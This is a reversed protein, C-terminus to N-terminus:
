LRDLDEILDHADALDITRTNLYGFGDAALLLARAIELERSRVRAMTDADDLMVALSDNLDASDIIAAAHEDASGEDISVRHSAGQKKLFVIHHLKAPGSLRLGPIIEDAHVRTSILFETRLVRELVFRAVNKAYIAAVIRKPIQSGRINRVNYTFLHLPRPYPYVVNEKTDVLLLDDGMFEYGSELLSMSLTTKGTGGHAPFVFASGGRSVGASHMFLVGHELLSLYMVPELVHAQLFVGVATMYLRSVRHDVFWITAEDSGLGAVAYRFTFLKKFRASRVIADAPLDDPLDDVIELRVTCRAPADIVNTEDIRLYENDFYRDYARRGGADIVLSLHDQFAYTQM